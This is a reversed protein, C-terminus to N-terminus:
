YREFTEHLRSRFTNVFVSAVVREARARALRILSQHGAHQNGLTRVDGVSPVFGVTQGKGRWGRMAARLAPADQVTQMTPRSALETSGPDTSVISPHRSRAAACMRPM